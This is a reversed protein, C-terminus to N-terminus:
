KINPFCNFLYYTHLYTIAASHSTFLHLSITQYVTEVKRITTPFLPVIKVDHLYGLINPKPRYIINKM